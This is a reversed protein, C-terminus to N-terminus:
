GVWVAGWMWPMHLQLHLQLDSTLTNSGCLSLEPVSGRPQAQLSPWHYSYLTLQGSVLLGGIRSQPLLRKRQGGYVVPLPKMKFM